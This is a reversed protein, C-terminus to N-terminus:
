RRWRLADPVDLIEFLGDDLDPRRDPVRGPDLEAVSYQGDPDITVEFTRNDVFVTGTLM